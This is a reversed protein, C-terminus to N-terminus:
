RDTSHITAAQGPRAQGRRDKGQVSRSTLSITDPQVKIPSHSIQINPISLPNLITRPKLIDFCICMCVCVCVCMYVCVFVSEEDLVAPSTQLDDLTVCISCKVSDYFCLIIFYIFRIFCVCTM